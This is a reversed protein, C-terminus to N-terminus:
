LRWHSAQFIGRSRIYPIIDGKPIKEIANKLRQQTKSDLSDLYKKVQRSPKPPLKQIRM